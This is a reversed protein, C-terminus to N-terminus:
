ATVGPGPGRRCSRGARSGASAARPRPAREAVPEVILPKWSVTSPEPRIGSGTRSRTTRSQTSPWRAATGAQDSAAPASGAPDAEGAAVDAVLFDDVRLPALALRVPRPMLLRAPDHVVRPAVLRVRGARRTRWVLEGATLANRVWNAEPGYTLAFAVRTGDPSPFGLMPAAHLRGTRRGRHEIRGFGPLFWTIPGLIPNLILHNFTAVHRAFPIPM